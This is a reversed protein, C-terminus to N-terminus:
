FEKVVLNDLTANIFKYSNAESLMKAIEVAENISVKADISEKHLIEYTAVLLINKVSNSITDWSKDDTFSGSIKEKLDDFNTIIEQFYQTFLKISKATNKNGMSIIDAQIELISKPNMLWAYLAQATFYRAQTVDGFSNKKAL